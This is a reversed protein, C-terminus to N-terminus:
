EDVEELEAGDSITRIWQSWNEPMLNATEPHEAVVVQRWALYELAWSLDALTMDEMKKMELSRLERGGLPGGVNAANMSFFMETRRFLVIPGRWFLKDHRMHENPDLFGEMSDFATPALEWLLRAVCRNVPHLLSSERRVVYLRTGWSPGHIKILQPIGGVKIGLDYSPNQQLVFTTRVIGGHRERPRNGFETGFEIWIPRPSRGNVPLEIGVCRFEGPRHSDLVLEQSDQFPQYQDCLLVHVQLDKQRCRESCYWASKCVGCQTLGNLMSQKEQKDDENEDKEKSDQDLGQDGVVKECVHCPWSKLRHELTTDLGRELTYYCEPKNAALLEENYELYNDSNGIPCPRAAWDRPDQMDKEAEVTTHDYLLAADIWSGLYDLRSSQREERRYIEEFEEYSLKGWGGRKRQEEEALDLRKWERLVYQTFPPADENEDMENDRQAISEADEVSTSEGSDDAESEETAAHRQTQVLREIQRAFYAVDADSNPRFQPMTPDFHPLDTIPNSAGNQETAADDKLSLAQSQLEVTDENSPQIEVPEPIRGNTAAPTDATTEPEQHQDETQARAAAESSAKTPQNIGDESDLSVNEFYKRYKDRDARTAAARVALDEKRKFLVDLLENFAQQTVQYLIEKGADREADSIEMGGWREPVSRSSTSPNSRIEYDDTDEAFRVKSSSRSRPSLTRRSPEKHNKGRTNIEDSPGATALVDDSPNWGEPASAGEEEDLYFQRRKWRDILKKRAVIRTRRTNRARLLEDQEDPDYSYHLRQDDDDGLLRRLPGMRTPEVASALLIDANNGNGFVRGSSSSEGNPVSQGEAAQDERDREEFAHLFSDLTNRPEDTIVSQLEQVSRPPNLLADPYREALSSARPSQPGTPEDPSFLPEVFFPQPQSGRSFLNVLIDERSCTDPVSENVAGTKDGALAVDGNHHFVKGEMVRDQDADPVPGERGFFSSLPQRSTVLQHGETSSLVQDELGELIYKHMQKFLVYYARFLRLFDRRDVYGDGDVDYGEFIRRLKDPRKRYALGHLFESFGILDDKNTDYFAFMRDHILNPSAYRYGGSPVLCREFTKRDMALYLDDPDDRWETNAIFTWQEWFTELEPREFGTERSLKIMLERPLVRQCNDPDGPYVVPQMQRPGFPPAPVKVKYFIHTKIHLGQSECTECLDFDACNACRYRVGRIPVIGCANCACGRHVYSNRRANDESVRFLLSVMNQGARELPPQADDWWDPVLEDAITEVDASPRVSGDRSERGDIELRNERDQDADDYPDADTSSATSAARRRPQRRRRVANSRHLGTPGTSQTGSERYLYVGISLAAVASVLAIAFRPRALTTAMSSSSDM